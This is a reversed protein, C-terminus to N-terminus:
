SVPIPGWFKIIAKIVWDPTRGYGHAVVRGNVKIEWSGDKFVVSDFGSEAYDGLFYQHGNINAYIGSPIPLRNLLDGVWGAQAPQGHIIASTFNGDILCLGVVLSMCSVSLRVLNVARNTSRGASFSASSAHTNTM